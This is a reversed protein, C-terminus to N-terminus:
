PTIPQLFVTEYIRGEKGMSTGDAFGKVLANGYAYDMTRGTQQYQSAMRQSYEELSQWTEGNTSVFTEGENAVVQGQTTQNDHAAVTFAVELGLYTDAQGEGAEASEEGEEPAANIVVTVAFSQGTMVLVPTDLSVTHYGADAFSGTASALVTAAEMVQTADKGEANFGVPLTGVEVDFSSNADFTWASVAKVLQTAEAQFVNACRVEGKYRSPTVFEAAGVYDHQYIADYSQSVPTVAFAEPDSISHDYYSLWFYGSSQGNGDRLGWHTADEEGGLSSFLDDNGWSNKCLWAGDAPPQGSSASQFASAPYADDWGLILAAHNQVPADTACYQSWTAFTIDDDAEADQYEGKVVDQPISQEMQLAIAVGGVNALTRKIAATGAPDYGEYVTGSGDLAVTVRAPSQLRLVDSVRWGTDETMRAEDYLSWNEQRADFGGDLQYWPQSSGAEFGNYAYPAAEETLLTQWATLASAATAFNGSSLQETAASEILPFGEGAQAGASAETQSEHAFWAIARESIDPTAPLNTLDLEAFAPSDPPLADQAAGAAKAEAKLISSELAGAVAFAWCAGWPTQLKAPTAQGVNPLLYRPAQTPDITPAAEPASTGEAPGETSAAGESAGEVSGDGPSATEAAEEGSAVASASSAPPLPGPQPGAEGFALTAPQGFVLAAALVASCIYLSWQKM